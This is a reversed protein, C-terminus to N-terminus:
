FIRTMSSEKSEGYNPFDVGTDKFNYFIRLIRSKCWMIILNKSKANIRHGQKEIKSWQIHKNWEFSGM